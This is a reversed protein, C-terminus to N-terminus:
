QPIEFYCSNFRYVSQMFVYHKTYESYILFVLSSMCILVLVNKSVRFTSDQPKANKLIFRFISKGISM